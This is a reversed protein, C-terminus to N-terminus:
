RDEHLNDLQKMVASLYHFVVVEQRMALDEELYLDEIFSPADNAFELVDGIHNILAQIDTTQVAEVHNWVNRLVSGLGKEFKNCKELKDPQFSSFILLCTLDIFCPV